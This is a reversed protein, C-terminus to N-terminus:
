ERNGRKSKYVGIIVSRNHNHLVFDFIKGVLIM